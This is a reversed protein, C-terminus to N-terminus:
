NLCSCGYVSCDCPADKTTETKSKDSRPYHTLWLAYTYGERIHFYQYEIQSSIVDVNYKNEFDAIGRLIAARLQTPPVREDIPIWSHNGNTETQSLDLTIFRQEEQPKVTRDSVIPSNPEATGKIEGGGCSVCFLLGLILVFLGISIKM